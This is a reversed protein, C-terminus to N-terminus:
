EQGVKYKMRGSDDVYWKTWPSTLITNRMYAERGIEGLSNFLNTLNASRAASARDLANQRLKQAELIGNFGFSRQQMRAQQNATQARLDGESNYRDTERNFTDAALRQRANYEDGARYLEGLRNGANYDNALLGALVAGRSAGANMISRANGASQNELRNSYFLRDLPTYGTYNGLPRFSVPTYDGYRRAAGEVARAASYDPRNTLGLMDTVSGLAAGLAPVYRLNTLKSPKDTNRRTDPLEVPEGGDNALKETDAETIPWGIYDFPNYRHAQREMEDGNEFVNALVGGDRHWHAANRAFNAKKRMAPSFDGPNALVHSAFDQVGMGHKTAAATFTGKKSKDIHIKGGNAYDSNYLSDVYENDIESPYLSDIPIFGDYYSDYGDSKKYTNYLGGIGTIATPIGLGIATRKVLKGTKSGKGTAKGAADAAEGAKEAVNATEKAANAAKGAAMEAKMAKAGAKVGKAIRGAPIISAVADAESDPILLGKTFNAVVDLGNAVPGPLYKHIAGNVAKNASDLWDGVPLLPRPTYVRGAKGGDAFANGKWSSYGIPLLGGLSYGEAPMEAYEVVPIEGSDIAKIADKAQQRVQKKLREAEQSQALRSLAASLGHRTIPDNPREAIERAYKKAADSYTLLGKGNLKNAKRFDEPVRMRDSFVYDNYVTEGQEVLNPVGDKDSGMQVGGYPNEGHRGGAGIFTLGNDFDAGNYPLLVGNLGGGGSYYNRMANDYMEDDINEINNYVSADARAQADARQQRLKENKRRAKGGTFWGGKYVDRVSGQSDAMSIDDFNTANSAFNNLYDTGQRTEGLAQQDTKMGFARNALGGLVGAGAGVLAGTVGPIASGIKNAADFVGSVTSNTQYNGGLLNGAMSGGVGGIVGYLNDLKGGDEFYNLPNYISM